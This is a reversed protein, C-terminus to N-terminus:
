KSQLQPVVFRCRGVTMRLSARSAGGSAERELSGCGYKCSSHYFYQYDGM